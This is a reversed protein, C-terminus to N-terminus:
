CPNEYLFNGQWTNALYKGGPTFEDGWALEAGDLGSRAAFEWEAETPLDKGAWQAYALADSFFCSGRPAGAEEPYRADSGM